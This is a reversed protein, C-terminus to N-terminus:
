ATRAVPGSNATVFARYPGDIFQNPRWGKIMRDFYLSDAAGIGLGTATGVGMPLLADALLGLGAACIFRVSKTPLKDAWTKTVAAKYYSRILGSDTNADRLWQRFREAKDLLSLFESISREGSNIAERISPFDQLVIEQFLNLESSNTDRRSIFDFHKLRIIDSFIPGTVIEAM